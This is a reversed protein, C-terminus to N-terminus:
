SLRRLLCTSSAAISLSKGISDQGENTGAKINLQSENISLLECILTKMKPIHKNLKPKEAFISADINEIAYGKKILLDKTFLVIKKSDLNKYQMDTDPFHTGLDGLGLAGIISESIAHLLVDADSHGLLGFENDIKIGGLILPRDQSTQHIDYSYGIKFSPSLNEIDQKTTIKKNTTYVLGIEEDYISRYLSIDDTFQKSKANFCRMYKDRKFAQPTLGILLTDRDLVNLDQYVTDVVKQCSLVADYQNLKAKIDRIAEDKIFPRAADHIFVYKANSAKLGAFVSDARTKGGYVYRGQYHKLIEKEDAKNIVLIVDIQHKLFKDVSHMFLPKNDLLYLIKNESLGSREGKGAAVIIAEYM